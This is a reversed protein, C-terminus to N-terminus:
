LFMKQVKLKLIHYTKKRDELTLKLQQKFYQFNVKQQSEYLNIVYDINNETVSFIFFNFLELSTLANKIEPQEILLGLSEKDENLFATQIQKILKKEKNLGLIKSVKSFELDNLVGLQM